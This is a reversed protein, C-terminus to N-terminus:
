KYRKGFVLNGSDFIRYFGNNKMNGIESLSPDFNEKGLFKELKHRQTRYRPVIIQTNHKWWVFGPRTKTKEVFGLNKYVGGDSWDRRAYSMVSDPNKTREFFKMMKGAGGVTQIGPKFCLRLLEWEFGKNFRPKGFTMAAVLEKGHWLGACFVSRDTFGQMHSKECLKKALDFPCESVNCNRAWIRKSYVGMKAALMSKARERNNAWQYHFVHILRIGAKECAETKKKHYGPKRRLESHWYNGNLEVATRKGPVYIDIERPPIIKRNRTEVPLGLVNELYDLVEHEFKSKSGSCLPCGHGDQHHAPTQWFDGHEPCVICVKKRAKSYSVKSYDYRNGHTKKAREIFADVCSGRSCKPCKQGMLHNNPRQMFDGHIECEITVPIQSGKYCVKDYLYKDGHVERAKGLFADFSRNKHACKECGYGKLHSAGNQLFRGHEPCM